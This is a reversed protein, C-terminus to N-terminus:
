LLNSKEFYFEVGKPAAGFYKRMLRGHFSNCITTQLKERFGEIDLDYKCMNCDPCAPVLNDHVKGNDSKAKFHDMHFTNFDLDCGCYCCKGNFMDYITQKKKVSYSM